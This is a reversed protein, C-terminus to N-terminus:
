ITKVLDVPHWGPLGMMLQMAYINLGAYLVSLWSRIVRSDRVTPLTTM